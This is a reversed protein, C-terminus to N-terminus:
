NLHPMTTSGTLSKVFVLRRVTDNTDALISEVENIMSVARAMKDSLNKSM